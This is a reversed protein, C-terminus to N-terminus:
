LLINKSASTILTYTIYYSNDLVEGQDMQSRNCRRM